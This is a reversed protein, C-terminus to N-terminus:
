SMSHFHDTQTTSQFFLVPAHPCCVPTTLSPSPLPSSLAQGRPIGPARLAQACGPCPECRVARLRLMCDPGPSQGSTGIQTRLCLTRAHPAM